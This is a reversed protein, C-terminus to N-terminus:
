LSFFFCFHYNIHEHNNEAYFFSFFPEIQLSMKEHCYFSYRSIHGDRKRCANDSPRLLEKIFWYGSVYSNKDRPLM